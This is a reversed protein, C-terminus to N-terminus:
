SAGLAAQGKVTGPALGMKLFSLLRIICFPIPVRV